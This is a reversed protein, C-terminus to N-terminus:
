SAPTIKLILTKGSAVREPRPRFFGAWSIWYKEDYVPAMKAAQAPDTVIEATGEFAPGDATGVNVFVPSGKAIRKAKWSGPATTTWVNTGDWMFWIPAADSRTGDARQTAVYIHKETELAKVVDPALAATALAVGLLLGPLGLGLATRSRAM